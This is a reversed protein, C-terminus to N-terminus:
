AIMECADNQWDPAPRAEIRGQLEGVLCDAGFVVMRQRSFAVACHRTGALQEDEGLRASSSVGLYQEIGKHVVKLVLLAASPEKADVCFARRQIRRLVEIRVREQDERTGFIARARSIGICQVDNAASGRQDFVAKCRM